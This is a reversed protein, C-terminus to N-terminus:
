KQKKSVAARVTKVAEEYTEDLLPVLKEKPGGGIFEKVVENKENMYILPTPEEMQIEAKELVPIHEQSRFLNRVM